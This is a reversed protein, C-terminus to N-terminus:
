KAWGRANFEKSSTGPPSNKFAEIRSEIYPRTWGRPGKAIGKV